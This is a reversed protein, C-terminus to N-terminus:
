QAEGEGAAGGDPVVPDLLAPNGSGSIPQTIDVGADLTDTNILAPPPTIPGVAADEADEEEEEEGETEEEDEGEGEGESDDEGAFEDEGDDVDDVDAEEGAGSEGDGSGAAGTGSGTGVGDDNGAGSEDIVGQVEAGVTATVEEEGASVTVCGTLPCGNVTSEAAVLDGNEFDDFIATAAEDGTLRGGEGEIQGNIVVLLGGDERTPVIASDGLATVFGAPVEATGTNQVLLMDGIELVLSPANLVGETRSTAAPANLLEVIEEVTLESELAELTAADAVRLDDAAIRVTGGNGFLDIAGTQADIAVLGSALDITVPGDASEATLLGTVLISGSDSTLVEFQRLGPAASLDIDGIQISPGETETSSGVLLIRGADIRSLTDASLVYREGVDQLAGIVAGDSNTAVLEVSGDAGGAISGDGTIDLSPAAIGVDSSVISSELVFGDSSAVRLSGATTDGLEVDTGQALLLGGVDADQLAITDGALLDVIGSAQLAGEIDIFGGSRATLSGLSTLADTEVNEGADITLAEAGSIAGAVVDGAASLAINGTATLDSTVFLDGASSLAVSAANGTPAGFGLDAVTTEIDVLTAIELESDDLPDFDIAFGAATFLLMDASLLSGNALSVGALGPTVFDLTGADLEADDLAIGIPDVVVPVQGGMGDDVTFDPLVGSTMYDFSDISADAQILSIGGGTAHYGIGPTAGAGGVGSSVFLISQADLSGRTTGEFNNSVVIDLVQALGDGGDGQTAGAGGEGGTSTASFVANDLRVPAGRGLITGSGGLADGGDGGAGSSGAGGAGGLSTLTVAVETFTSSGEANAFVGGSKGGITARAGDVDGGAGGSLGDGGRGGTSVIDIATDGAVLLNGNQASSFLSVAGFRAAGGAGGDADTGGSGGDGGTVTMAVALDDFAITSLSAGNRADAFVSGGQAAGGDGSDLGAGGIATNSLTTAGGFRLAAERATVAIGAGLGEGGVAGAGGVTTVSATYDGQVDLPALNADISVDGARGTGGTGSPAAGGTALSSQQLGQAFTMGFGSNAFVVNRGADALGGDGGLGGADGGTATVDITTAGTFTLTESAGGNRQALFVVQSEAGGGDGSGDSSVSGGAATSAIDITSFDYTADSGSVVIERVTAFGGLGSGASGGAASAQLAMTTGALMAGRLDVLLPAITAPGGSGGEGLAAGGIALADITLADGVAIDGGNLGLFQIGGIESANGSGGDGGRATADIDLTGAVDLPAGNVQLELLGTTAFGGAITSEGGDGGNAEQLLTVSGISSPSNVIRMAVAGARATGGFTGAGTAAGGNAIARLRANGAISLSGDQSILQILESSLDASGGASGNGGLALRQLDIDGTAVINHGFGVVQVKSVSASGGNGGPADGGVASGGGGLRGDFTTTGAMTGDFSAEGASANGGNGGLAGATGGTAALSLNTNGTLTADGGRNSLFVNGAAADGGDGVDGSVTGGSAISQFILTSGATGIAADNLMALTTGSTANGGRGSAANGGRATQALAFTGAAQLDSGVLNATLTGTVANGGQGSGDTALAEGGTVFTAMQLGAAPVTGANSLTLTMDQGTADGGSGGAGGTARVIFQALQPFAATANTVSISNLGTSANGGRGDADASGAGGTTQSTVRLAGSYTAGNDIAITINGSQASGGLVGLAAPDSSGGGTATNNLDYAFVQASSDDVLLTTDGSIADGGIANDGIAAGGTAGTNPSVFTASLNSGGRVLVFAAGAAASGGVGGAMSEGGIAQTDININGTALSSGTGNPDFFSPGDVNIASAGATANGGLGGAVAGSFLNLQSADISSAGSLAIVSASGNANGGEDAVANSRLTVTGAVDVVGGSRSELQALGGIADIGPLGVLDASADIDIDGGVLVTGGFARMASGGAIALSDGNADESVASSVILDGAVDLTAGNEIVVEALATDETFGPGGPLSTSVFATGDIDIVTGPMNSRIAAGTRGELTVDSAYSQGTASEGILEAGGSARATFASTVTVGEGFGNDLGSVFVNAETPNVPTDELEGVSLNYGASLVVANDEVAAAGAIDFGLESGGQISMFIADNKPVTVLYVRHADGTGTSVPGGTSGTHFLGTSNQDGDSGVTVQIDFLGDPSFTISGAEASVLAASGNVAIDGLQGVVPAFVAVYSGESLANIQAGQSIAVSSQSNQVGGFQVQNNVLWEGNADIVPESTTLGLSGVDFLANSGVIIGGPTYFFVTGGTVQGAGTQLQSLVTGDFIVPRSADSPLIRNLVAFDAIGTGNTFTATTGDPQFLIPQGNAIADDDPTWDIVASESDVTVDTSGPGETVGAAGFVVNADGLFSQALAPAAGAVGGFGGVVALASCRTLLTTMSRSTM